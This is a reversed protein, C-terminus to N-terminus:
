RADQAENLYDDPYCESDKAVSAVTKRPTGHLCGGSELDHRQNDAAM